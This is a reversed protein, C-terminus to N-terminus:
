AWTDTAASRGAIRGFVAASTLGVGGPYNFYFLGGVMEGAACLGPIVRSDVDLVRCSLDTRVGGFTFTIGNTCPYAEFPPKEIATAWNSKPIALGVTSRGDKVGPQFPVDNRTAANYEHVTTLFRQRDVNTMKEALDELSDAMVRTSQEAHYEPLLLDSCQADYIQWVTQGPQEMIVRGLRAYMLGGSDEGEDLFREGRNNVLLGYNFSDRKFVTNLELVNQDPANLDWNTTHCGSWNGFPMAGAELAMRLGDGTNFRSGRVKVLDWGPGLYRARWEPNAEFGGAALVVADGRVEVRSRGQAVAVGEIGREGELLGVARSDYRVDVDHREAAAFLSDSLAAGRNWASTGPVVQYNQALWDITDRSSDAVLKALAPDTRNETVKFLDALFQERTLPRGGGSGGDRVARIAGNSFRTNGGREAEPARELVVVSAGQERAALAASLGAIGAGIVVVRRPEEPM